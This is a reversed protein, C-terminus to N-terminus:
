PTGGRHSDSGASRLLGSVESPTTRSADLAATLVEVSRRGDHVARAFAPGHAATARAADRDALLDLLVVRLSEPDAEVVPLTRGTAERVRTRVVDRVHSVVVRGAALAECVAVGYIGVSMQDVVVDASRYLAPMDGPAVGEVRRYEVLGEVALAELVPDVHQSGKMVSRSPAHVVVPVERQLPPDTAAWDDPRVVVPCWTADPLDDLLDPTSVLVPGDYRRLVKGSRGARGEMTRVREPPMVEFPSWRELRVNRSPLRVDSGHALLVVGLGAARLADADRRAGGRGAKGVVGLNSEIVVHTYRERLLRGFAAAWTADDVYTAHDVQLDGVYPHGPRAFDYSQASTGAAHEDLARAWATSQGASNAPGVLVRRPAAAPAPMETRLARLRRRVRVARAVARARARADM